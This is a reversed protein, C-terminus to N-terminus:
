GCREVSRRVLVELRPDRLFPDGYCAVTDEWSMMVGLDVGLVFAAMDTSVTRAVIELVGRKADIPIDVWAPFCATDMAWAQARAVWAQHSISATGDVCAKMLADLRIRLARCQGLSLSLRAAMEIEGCQMHHFWLLRGHEEIIPRWRVRLNCRKGRVFSLWRTLDVDTPRPHVLMSSIQGATRRTPPASPFNQWSDVVMM